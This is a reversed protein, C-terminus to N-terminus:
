EFYDRREKKLQKLQERNIKVQEYCCFDKDCYEELRQTMETPSLSYDDIICMYDVMNTMYSAELQITEKVYELEDKLDEILFLKSSTELDNIEQILDHFDQCSGEIMDQLHCFSECLNIDELIWRNTLLMYITEKRFHTFFVNLKLLELKIFTFEDKIQM